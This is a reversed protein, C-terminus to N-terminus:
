LTDYDKEISEVIKDVSVKNGLTKVVKVFEDAASQNIAKLRFFAETFKIDEFPSNKQQYASIAKQKLDEADAQPDKNLQTLFDELIAVPKNKLSAWVSGVDDRYKIAVNAHPYAALAQEKTSVFKGDIETPNTQEPKIKGNEESLEASKNEELADVGRRDISTTVLTTNLQRNQHTSSTKPDKSQNNVRVEAKVAPDLRAALYKGHCGSCRGNPMSNLYDITIGCETCSSPLNAEAIEKLGYGVNGSNSVVADKVSTKCNLKNVANAATLSAINEIKILLYYILACILLQVGYSGFLFQIPEIALLDLLKTDGFNGILLFINMAKIFILIFIYVKARILKNRFADVPLLFWLVGIIGLSKPAYFGISQLIYPNVIELFLGILGFFFILLKM